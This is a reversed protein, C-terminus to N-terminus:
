ALNDSFDNSGLFDSVLMSSPTIKSFHRAQELVKGCDALSGGHSGGNMVTLTDNFDLLIISHKIEKMIAVGMHIFFESGNSQGLLETWVQCLERQGPFTQAFM